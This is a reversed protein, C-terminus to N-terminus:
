KAYYLDAMGHLRLCENAEDAGETKEDEHIRWIPQHLRYDVLSQAYEKSKGGFASRVFLWPFVQSKDQGPKSSPSLVAFLLVRDGVSCTNAVGFHPTSQCFIIIDGPFRRDSIYQEPALLHAVDRMKAKNDSFSLDDNVDFKPLATSYHGLSCMLLCTYKRSATRERACDWHVVQGGKGPGASLMKQDVVFLSGADIGVMAATGRILETWEATINDFGEM